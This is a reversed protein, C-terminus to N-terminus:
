NNFKMLSKYHFQDKFSTYLQKREPKKTFNEGKPDTKRKTLHSISKMGKGYEKLKAIEKKKKQEDM